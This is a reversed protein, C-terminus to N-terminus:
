VARSAFCDRVELGIRSETKSGFAHWAALTQWFFFLFCALELAKSSEVSKLQIRVFTPIFILFAFCSPKGSDKLCKPNLLESYFMLIGLTQKEKFLYIGIQQLNQGTARASKEAHM